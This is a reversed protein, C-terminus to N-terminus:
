KGEEQLGAGEGEAAPEDDHREKLLAEHLLRAPEALPFEEDGDRHAHDTGSGDHDGRGEDAVEDSSTEVPGEELAEPAGEHRRDANEQWGKQQDQDHRRDEHSIPRVGMHLPEDLAGVGGRDARDEPGADQEPLDRDAVPEGREDREPAEHDQEAPLDAIRQEHGGRRDDAQDREWQEFGFPYEHLLSDRMSLPDCPPLSM